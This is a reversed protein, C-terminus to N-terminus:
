RVRRFKLEGFLRVIARLKSRTQAPFLSVHRSIRRPELLLNKVSSAAMSLDGPYVTAVGSGRIKSQQTRIRRFLLRFYDLRDFPFFYFSITM